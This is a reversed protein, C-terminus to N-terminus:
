RRGTVRLDHFQEFKKVWVAFEEQTLLEMEFLAPTGHKGYEEKNYGRLFEVHNIEDHYKRYEPGLANFDFHNKVGAKKFVLARLQGFTPM